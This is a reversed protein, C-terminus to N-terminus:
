FIIKGLNGIDNVMHIFDDLNENISVRIDFTASMEAPIVNAEVGGKIITLNITTINGYPYKLENLKREEEKRMEMFKGLLYNLKEGPTNKLIQSGHGSQGHFIFETQLIAREGYYVNLSGDENTSIGGEDLM